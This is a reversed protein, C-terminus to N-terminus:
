LHNDRRLRPVTDDCRGSNEGCRNQVGQRVKRVARKNQDKANGTATREETLPVGPLEPLKAFNVAM